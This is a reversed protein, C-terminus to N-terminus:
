LGLAAVVGAHEELLRMRAGVVALLKPVVSPMAVELMENFDDRDLVLLDMDTRATVTATREGGDILAMEGFFSGPGLDGVPDGDVSAVADGAVVVFFESGDEGQRTLEEGAQATRRVALAAIREVEHETCGSFLWAGGLLRIREDIDSGDTV